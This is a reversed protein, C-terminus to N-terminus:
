LGSVTTPAFSTIDQPPCTFITGVTSPYEVVPRIAFPAPFYPLPLHDTTRNSLLKSLRRCGEQRGIYTRNTVGAENSQKRMRSPNFVDPGM